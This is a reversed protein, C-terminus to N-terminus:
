KGMLSHMVHFHPGHSNLDSSFVCCRANHKVSYANLLYQCILSHTFLLVM